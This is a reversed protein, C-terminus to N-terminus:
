NLSKKSIFILLHSHSDIFSNMLFYMALLDHHNEQSSFTAEDSYGVGIYHLYNKLVLNLEWVSKM